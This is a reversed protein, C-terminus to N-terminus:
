KKSNKINDSLEQILPLFKENHMKINNNLHAIDYRIEALKLDMNQGLKDVKTGAELEVKELEHKVEALGTATSEIKNFLHKMIFGIVAILITGVTGLTLSSSPTIQLLEM